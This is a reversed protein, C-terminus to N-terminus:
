FSDFWQKQRPIKFSSLMATKLNLSLNYSKNPGFPVWAINAQWCKLDRYINISTYSLRLSSFDFGTVIGIKWFKTPSINGGASLFHLPIIKKNNNNTLTLNYQFSMDWPMEEETENLNTKKSKEANKKEKKFSNNTISTNLTMSGSVFRGIKSQKDITFKNISRKKNYDYVYPDLNSSLNVILNKLIVTRATLSINRMKFSDAAFNYFTNIGFGQIWSVKKTTAGTDTKMNYKADVVNNLNLDLGNVEGSINPGRLIGNEYISYRSTNGISDRQVNKMYGFQNTGFDPIYNYTVTPILLHRIQKVKGKRFMYDFYLKTNFATSFTADYGNIFDNKTKSIIGYNPLQVLRGGVLATGKQAENIPLEPVLPTPLPGTASNRYNVIGWEKVTSKFYTYANLNIAPSATIYKLINFNTSIPISQRIGYNMRDLINGKFITSDNGSLRNQAEVFYSIGIKDIANQNTVGERKFPFFRNVNFTLAPLTINMDNTQSSQSHEASLSLSSKKFIKTFNILSIFTNQLYAGPNFNNLRNVNQNKVYNVSSTFRVSPNNKNDQTHSWRLEYAKLTSFSIPVDRDGNNFQKYGFYASGSAKYLINYNNTTNLAWSGNSYIDGRIIMNTKDNIGWYYGGEKLFFGQVESFGYQPLLIGNHQKKTNPFFGFPLGLPTPVGGISLYMPGTVIKDNPIVKARTAIFATRADKDECPLCKMDKFYVVNSSDKKIQEGFVLLEGQKTLANFIKGRKTKLNYMIKEAELPEAGDKFVPTGFLKGLSDKKGYAVVINKSYDIEMIESQISMSGYDVKAKGYLLAKGEAPLAVISDEAFYNIQEEISESDNNSSLTDTKENQANLQISCISILLLFFFVVKKHPSSIV